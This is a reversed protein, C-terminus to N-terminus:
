PCSFNVHNSRHSDNDVSPPCNTLQKSFGFVKEGELHLLCNIFSSGFTYNAMVEVLRIPDNLGQAKKLLM